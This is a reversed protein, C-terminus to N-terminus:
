PSYQGDWAQWVSHVHFNSRSLAQLNHSRGHLCLSKDTQLITVDTENYYSKHAEHFFKRHFKFMEESVRNYKDETNVMIDEDIKVKDLDQSVISYFVPKEDKGKKFKLSMKIESIKGAGYRIQPEYGAGKLDFVFRNLDNDKLILKYEDEKKLKLLDDITEIMKFKMAEKRDNIYYNSHNKLTHNEEDKTKRKVSELKHNLTYIHSSKVLGNFTVVRKSFYNEGDHRHIPKSNISIDYIRAKINFQKFVKEMERISAGNNKFEEETKNIIEIVKERTLNKARKGKKQRMLTDARHDILTNTWCENEIHHNKM